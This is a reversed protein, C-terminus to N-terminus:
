TESIEYRLRVSMSVARDTTLRLCQYKKREEDKVSSGDIEFYYTEGRYGDKYGFFINHSKKKDDLVEISIEIKNSEDRNYFDDREFYNIMPYRSGLIRDIATLINSKGANNEGILATVTKPHFELAKISKFNEIYVQTIQM